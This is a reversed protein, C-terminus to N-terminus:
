ETAAATSAEATAATSAEPVETAVPKEVESSAKIAQRVYDLAILTISKKEVKPIVAPFTANVIYSEPLRPIFRKLFGSKFSLSSQKDEEAKKNYVTANFEAPTMDPYAKRIIAHDLYVIRARKLTTETYIILSPPLERIEARSEGRYNELIPQQDIGGSNKLSIGITQDDVDVEIDIV